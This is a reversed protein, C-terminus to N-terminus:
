KRSRNRFKVAICVVLVTVAALVAIVVIWVVQLQSTTCYEAISSPHCVTVVTHTQHAESVFIMQGTSIRFSEGKGLSVLLLTNSAQEFEKKVAQIHISVTGSYYAERIDVDIGTPVRYSMIIECADGIFIGIPSPCTTPIRIVHPKESPWAALAGIEFRGDAEFETINNLWGVNIRNPAIFGGTTDRSFRGGMIATADGYELMNATSCASRNLGCGYAHNLNYNHGLEHLRTYVTPSRIFTFCNPKTCMTSGAGEGVDSECTSGYDRPIIYEIHSFTELDINSGLTAEKDVMGLLRQIFCGNTRIYTLEASTELVITRIDSMNKLFKIAGYSSEYFVSQVSRHSNGWIGESLEMESYMSSSNAYAVRLTLINTHLESLRRGNMMDPRFSRAFLIDIKYIQSLAVTETLTAHIYEGSKIKFSTDTITTYAFKTANKCVLMSAISMRVCQGAFGFM